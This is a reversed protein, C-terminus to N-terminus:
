RILRLGLQAGRQRPHPVRLSVIDDESCETTHFFFIVDCAQCVRCGYDEVGVRKKRTKEVRKIDGHRDSQRKGKSGESGEEEKRKRGRKKDGAEM